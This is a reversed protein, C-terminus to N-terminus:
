RKVRRFGSCPIIEIKGKKEVEDLLINLGLNDSSIHGAVVINMFERKAKKLHNESLHMCILTGVGAASLKEFVDRSGETGGTMDVLIKGVRSNKDGKIIKPGAKEQKAIRYEPIDDLIDMLDEVREPKKKYMLKTLYTAVCNDSATHCCMYPIGLLKAADVPRSHNVPSLGREVESIREKMLGEAANISVGVKNLIETQIHMVQYLGALARGEPHHAMVLDIRKKKENLRDALLLEGIEIDIGILISKIDKKLDGFLIRTDAYPNTLTDVDFKKKDKDSLKGYELNAKDLTKNVSDKLRPDNEIGKKVILEYLDKLKM